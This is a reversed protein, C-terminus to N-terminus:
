HKIHSDLYIVIIYVLPEGSTTDSVQNFM